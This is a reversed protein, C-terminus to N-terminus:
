QSQDKTASENTMELDKLFENQSPRGSVRIARSRRTMVTTRWMALSAVAVGILCALAVTWGLRWRIDADSLGPTGAPMGADAESESPVDLVGIIVPALDAGASSQYALRKLFTGILEAPPGSELSADEDVRAIATPVTPVIAVIPRDAGDDPRLWLQWYEKIGFVNDGADLRQARAVTGSVRVAHGRFVDPQQLLPVVGVRTASRSTAWMRPENAAQDLLRYFSDFDGSRWVSGDVVRGIAADDLSSLLAVVIAHTEPDLSNGHGPKVAGPLNILRSIATQWQEMRQNSLGSQHSKRGEIRIAIETLSSKPDGLPKGAIARSLDRVWSRQGDPDTQSVLEDAIRRDEPLVRSGSESSVATSGSGAGAGGGSGGTPTMPQLAATPVASFFPRYLSAKSAQKMVVVVLALGIVLRVLRRSQGFRGGIRRGSQGRRYLNGDNFESPIRM